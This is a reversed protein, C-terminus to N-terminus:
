MHERFPYQIRYGGRKESEDLIADFDSIIIKREFPSHKFSSNVSNWCMHKEKFIDLMYINCLNLFVGLQLRRLSTM